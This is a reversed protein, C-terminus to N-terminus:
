IHSWLVVEAYIKANRKLALELEELVLAGGGGSIYLDMETKILHELLKRLNIM